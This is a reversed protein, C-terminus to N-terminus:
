ASNMMAEFKEVYALVVWVFASHSWTLPSVSLPAGTVPHVQEAMVGSALANTACWQLYPLAQRLEDLTRARAIEYEGLWLTSIFWPNGPVDTPVDGDRQYQDDPYRAIGGVSTRCLLRERVADVTRVIRADAPDLVGLTALGLLSIDVFEDLMYGSEDRYGSRAYRELGPHYLHREIGEVMADAAARYTDVRGRDGFVDAFQAAARLGAIVAAVTYAHVGYREEWLDYSPTPLCTEPDRYSVLFDGGKLVLKEYLPRIFDIDKSCSYHIWLAWLVLATSDEQIPLVERGDLVWGHWNSALTGDPNYHQFLYGGASLADNCFAFFRQCLEPYGAKELAAAVFAGDRGWVYSYTDGGFRVIDSDNAAVIAGRNDIQSRLILLSRQYLDTIERPLDALPRNDRRCWAEWYSATRQILASPTHEGVLTNLHTVENYDTGAAIWYCAQQSGGPALSLRVGVTSEAFGWANPSGALEGDEADKWSSQIGTADRFGCSFYDGADNGAARCNALFYRSQKYHIISGSRPDFFATDGIEHGYLHFDHCFFLRVDRAAGSTDRVEMRKLYVDLQFDVADQCRITLGLEKNTLMVETVLTDDRYRLDKEWEPGMWSFRGDAWVGFRFEQGRTHNEQGVWPFYVDRIRYDLDFNVLLKGNSLPLDRPM